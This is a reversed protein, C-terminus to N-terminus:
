QSFFFSVSVRRSFHEADCTITFVLLSCHRAHVVDLWMPPAALKQQRSDFMTSKNIQPVCCPPFHNGVMPHMYVYIHVYQMKMEIKALPKPDNPQRQSILAKVKFGNWKSATIVGAHETVLFLNMSRRAVYTVGVFHCKMSIVIMIVPKKQAQEYILLAYFAGCVYCSLM